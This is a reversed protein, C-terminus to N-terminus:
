NDSYFTPYDNDSAASFYDNASLFGSLYVRHENTVIKPVITYLSSDCIVTPTIGSEFAAKIEGFTRDMTIIGTGDDPSLTIVFGGGGGSSAANTWLRIAGDKYYYVPHEARLEVATASYAIGLFIYIKGDETSPLAQVYPTDADIIASGNVQPACKIYIPAPYTLVLAAGTRNFAYGFTVAYQQWLQAATVNANAEIATTTGYYVIPGFPNIARQNVDRKATANTSTSTNSPVWKSGDASTFLIRYRYFKDSAPLTGSNTRLQYGITNADSYYGRYNVWCGGSVRTSDYIFMLTYNVNFITTERTAAAMNSYVPLAGLNNVNITFNAASTVVGNKLVVTLGDRYETLGDITATYVTSTSNPNVAGFFLMAKNEADQGDVYTKTTFNSDNTLQSVATPVTVTVDGTAGNVSTVYEEALKEAFDAETGTYGGDVAYSYASKGNAGSPGQPGMEGTEGKPGQIGQPGTAGTAGREGTDGKSGKEGKPGQPGTAGTDGKPGQDGKSGKDGKPGQIGQPGQPGMPGQDGKDGKFDGSAKAEALGENVERNIIRQVGIDSLTVDGVLETGEISPHNRLENYDNERVVTTTGVDLGATLAGPTVSLTAEIIPEEVILDIAM